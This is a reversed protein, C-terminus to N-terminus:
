RVREFAVAQDAAHGILQLYSGGASDGDVIMTVFEGEPRADVLGLARPGIGPELCLPSDGGDTRGSWLGGSPENLTVVEILDCGNVVVDFVLTCVFASGSATVTGEIDIDVLEGLDLYAARDIRWDGALPCAHRPAWTDVTPTGENTNIGTDGTKDGPERSEGELLIPTCALLLAIM